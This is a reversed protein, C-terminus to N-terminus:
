KITVMSLDAVLSEINDATLAVGSAKVSVYEEAVASFGCAFILLLLAYIKKM